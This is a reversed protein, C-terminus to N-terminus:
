ICIVALSLNSHKHRDRETNFLQSFVHNGNYVYSATKRECVDWLGVESVQLTCKMATFWDSIFDWRGVYLWVFM